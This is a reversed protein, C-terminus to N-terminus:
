DWGFFRETGLAPIVRRALEEIPSVVDLPQRDAGPPTV